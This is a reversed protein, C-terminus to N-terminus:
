RIHTHIHTNQILGKDTIHTAFTKGLKVNIKQNQEHHIKKKKTTDPAHM